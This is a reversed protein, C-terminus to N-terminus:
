QQVVTIPEDVRLSVKSGAPVTLEHGKAMLVAGTGAVAGGVAGLITSKTDKGAIKGILAGAVAGGGILLKDRTGTGEAVLKGESNMVTAHLPKEGDVTQISTFTFAISARNEEKKSRSARTLQSIEGKLTAGTEAIVVGDSNTLPAALQAEVKDGVNSTRTDCPTNMTVDFTTGVAIEATKPAAAPAAAEEPAEEHRAAPQPTRHARVKPKEMRSPETTVPAEAPAPQQAPPTTVAGQDPAPTAPASQSAQDQARSVQEESKKGCATLLLSLALALALSFLLRSRNM